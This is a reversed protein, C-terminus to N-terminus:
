LVCLTRVCKMENDRTTYMEKNQKGGLEVEFNYIFIDNKHLIIIM